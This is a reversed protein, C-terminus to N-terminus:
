ALAAETSSHIPFLEEMATLRLVKTVLGDGDAVLAIETEPHEERLAILVGLGSSDMFEVELLDFVVRKMEDWDVDEVEERLQPSTALDLEGAVQVLLTSGRETLSVEIPHDNTM